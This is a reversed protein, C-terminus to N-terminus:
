KWTLGLAEVEDRVTTMPWIQLEGKPAAACILGGACLTLWGISGGQPARMVALKEPPHAARYLHVEEDAGTVALWNDRDRTFIFAAGRGQGQNPPVPVPIATKWDGCRLLHATRGSLALWVGDRSFSPMWNGSRPPDELTALVNGTAAEIIRAEAAGPAGAALWKGDPSFACRTGSPAPISRVLGTFALAALDFSWLELVAPDSRMLAVLTGSPQIAVDTCGGTLLRRSDRLMPLGTTGKGTPEVVHCWVGDAVAVLLKQGDGPHFALGSPRDHPLVINHGSAPRTKWVVVSEGTLSATLLGFPTGACMRVGDSKQAPNLTTIVNPWKLSYWGTKGDHSVPGVSSEDRNLSLSVSSGPLTLVPRQASRDWLRITGDSSSSIHRYNHTAGSVISLVPQTHGEFVSQPTRTKINWATVRGEEDGALLWNELNEWELSEVTARCPLICEIQEPRADMNWVYIERRSRSAAALLNKTISYGLASWEPPIGPPCYLRRYVVGSIAERVAIDGNKEPHMFRWPRVVDDPRYPQFIVQNARAEASHEWVDANLVSPFGVMSVLGIRTGDFRYALFGGDLSWHLLADIKKPAVDHVSEVQGTSIDVVTVKGDPTAWAYRRGYRNAVALEPREPVPLEPQPVFTADPLALASIAASRARVVQEPTLPLKLADRLAALSGERQGQRGTLRQFEAQWLLSEALTAEKETLVTTKEADSRRLQQNSHLIWAFGGVAGAALLAAMTTLAPNRRARRWWRGAFGVPRALVPEGQLFRELEQALAAASVYRRAPNKELCKLTVTELERPISPVIRRPPVPDADTVMRLTAQPSEGAFPPRGTLLHYLIAGLSYVDAATTVRKGGGAAQEPSMWSPSGLVQLSGTLSSDGHLQRALGFDTVRPEDLHDLLINSPKLDRHLLGEDHAHQVASAVRAMCAAAAHPPMPKEKVADALTRGPVYDMVYYPMGDQSGTDHITVINPHQLGAAAAAEQVFRRRAAPSALEGASIMKLARVEQTVTHQARYVTGMGGCGIIELLEYDGMSRLPVSEFLAAPDDGLTDDMEKFVCHPCFGQAAGAPLPQGCDRCCDAGAEGTSASRHPTASPPHSM